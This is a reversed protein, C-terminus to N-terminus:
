RVRYSNIQYFEEAIKSSKKNISCCGSSVSRLAFVSRAKARAAYITRCEAFVRQVTRAEHFDQAPRLPNKVRQPPHILVADEAGVNGNPRM